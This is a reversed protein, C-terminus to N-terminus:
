SMPPPSRSRARGLEEPSVAAEKVWIREAKMRMFDLFKPMMMAAQMDEAVTAPVSGDLSKTTDAEQEEKDMPSVAALMGRLEEEAAQAKRCEESATLVAAEMLRM